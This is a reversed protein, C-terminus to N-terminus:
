RTKLLGSYVKRLHSEFAKKAHALNFGKVPWGGKWDRLAKDVYDVDEGGIRLIRRAMSCVKCYEVVVRDGRRFFKFKHRGDKFKVVLVGVLGGDRTM